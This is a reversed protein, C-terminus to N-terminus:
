VEEVLSYERLTAEQRVLHIVGATVLTGAAAGGALIGTRTWGRPPGEARGKKAAHIAAATALVGLGAGVALIITRTWGLGEQQLQPFTEEYLLPM